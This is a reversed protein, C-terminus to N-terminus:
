TSLTFSLTASSHIFLIDTFTWTNSDIKDNTDLKLGKQKTTYEGWNLYEKTSSNASILSSLHFAQHAVSYRTMEKRTAKEEKEKSKAKSALEHTVGTCLLYFDGMYILSTVPAALPPLLTECSYVHEVDTFM